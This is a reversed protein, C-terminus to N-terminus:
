KKDSSCCQRQIFSCSCSLEPYSITVSFAVLRRLRPWAPLLCGCAVRFTVCGEEPVVDFPAMCLVQESLHQLWLRATVESAAHMKRTEFSAAASADLVRAAASAAASAAAAADAAAAPTHKSHPDGHAHPPAAAAPPPLPPLLVGFGPSAHFPMLVAALRDAVGEVVSQRAAAAAAAARRVRRDLRAAAAKV